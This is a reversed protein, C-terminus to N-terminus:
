TCLLSRRSGLISDIADLFGELMPDEVALSL